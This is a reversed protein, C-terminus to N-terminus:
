AASPTVSRLPITWRDMVQTAPTREEAYPASSYIGVIERATVELRVFGFNDHDFYELSLSSSLELPAQPYNGDIKQLKGLKSYGGNGVVVCPLDVEAGGIENKTTFRQYNHVHGSLVLHPWVGTAAFSGFLVQEAM